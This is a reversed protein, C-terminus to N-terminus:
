KMANMQMNAGNNMTIRAGRTKGLFMMRVKRNVKMSPIQSAGIRNM